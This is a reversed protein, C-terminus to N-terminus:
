VITWTSGNSITITVGNNITITGATMANRGSALTYNQTVTQANEYFLDDVAGAREWSATSGDTKLFKGAYGTQSPLADIGTLASGDGTYSTAAVTGTVDIGTSTTALKESGDYRIGVAGNAAMTIMNEGDGSRLRFDTADIFLNGTGGDRIYSHSGDHYIQLDSGAGFIAKDNDGFSLNGTIADGTNLVYNDPISQLASDALAGQAATAYDALDFAKVQALNTVESDMLAGAATVNATDTVDANAEINSLKVKESDTYANTNANNEYATKIEADTQDATAGIEIGNLKASNLKSDTVSGNAIKTETVADSAIKSETIASDQIDRGEVSDTEIATSIIGNSKGIYGAM